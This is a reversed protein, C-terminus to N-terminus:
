VRDWIRRGMIYSLTANGLTGAVFTVNVTALAFPTYQAAPYTALLSSPFAPMGAPYSRWADVKSATIMSKYSMLATSSAGIGITGSSGTGWLAPYNDASADLPYTVNTDFSATGSTVLGGALSLGGGFQNMWDGSYGVASGFADQVLAYITINYTGGSPPVIFSENGNSDCILFSLSAHWLQSGLLAALLATTRLIWRSKKYNTPLKM